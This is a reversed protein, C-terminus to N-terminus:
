GQVSPPGFTPTSFFFIPVPSKKEKFSNNKEHVSFSPFIVSLNQSTSNQNQSSEHHSDHYLSNDNNNNDFLPLTPLINHNYYFSSFSPPSLLFSSTIKEFMEGDWYYLHRILTLFEDGKKFFKNSIGNKEESISKSNEVQNDAIRRKVFSSKRSPILTDIENTTDTSSM